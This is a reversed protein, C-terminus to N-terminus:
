VDPQPHPILALLQMAKSRLEPPGQYNQLQDRASANLETSQGDLMNQLLLFFEDTIYAPYNFDSFIGDESTIADLLITQTGLSHKYMHWDSTISRFTGIYLASLSVQSLSTSLLQKLARFFLEVIFGLGGGDRLDQLRWL